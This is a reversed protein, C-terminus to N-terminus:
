RGNKGSRSYILAAIFGVLFAAGVLYGLVASSPWVSGTSVCYGLRFGVLNVPAAMFFALLKKWPGFDLWGIFGGIFFAVVLGLVIGALPIWGFIFELVFGILDAWFIGWVFSSLEDTASRRISNSTKTAINNM